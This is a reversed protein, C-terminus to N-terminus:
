MGLNRKARINALTARAIVDTDSSTTRAEGTDAPLRAVGGIPVKSLSSFPEPVTAPSATPTETAM